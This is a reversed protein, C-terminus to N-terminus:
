LQETKQSRERHSLFEWSFDCYEAGNAITQSRVLEIGYERAQCYDLNCAAHAALEPTVGQEKFYDALPCVTVDFAVGTDSPLHRHVFPPPFFYRTIIGFIWKVRTERKASRLLSLKFMAAPVPQFYEMAVTEVFEGAEVQSVGHEQLARYLSLNWEVYRMLLNLSFGYRPRSPALQSQWNRTSRWVRESKDPFQTQLHHTAARRFNADPFYWRLLGMSM